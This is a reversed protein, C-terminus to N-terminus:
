ATSIALRWTTGSFLMPDSSFINEAGKNLALKGEM